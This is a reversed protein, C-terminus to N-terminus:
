DNLITLMQSHLAADGCAIAQGGQHAPGGQWDTIVGGAEEILTVLPQIDVNKLGQEVVLDIQGMALLAYNYCDGGYRTLKAQSQLRAWIDQAPTDVFLEPTTTALVADSLGSCSRVKIEATSGDRQFFSGEDQTAFFREGTFPQELMSLVPRGQHNLGVLTGWTPMGSIFARTGDIPDIVWEFVDGTKADYEEGTIAHTPYHTEILVRIATEAARDAETVPDFGDSLKNDVQVVNRFLPATARSAADCLQHAFLLFEDYRPTDTM